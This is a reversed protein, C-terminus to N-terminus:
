AGKGGSVLFAIGFGALASSLGIILMQLGSRSPRGVTSKARWWGIVFLTVGSLVLALVIGLFIDHPFLVFPILPMVSGVIAATGVLAASKRAQKPDVPSLNLEHAMMIDLWAKPKLTIHTLIEELEKSPVGWRRLIGRVEEKESEPQERM